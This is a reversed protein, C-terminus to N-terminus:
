ISKEVKELDPLIYRVKRSYINNEVEKSYPFGNLRLFEKNYAITVKCDDSHKVGESSNCHPCIYSM